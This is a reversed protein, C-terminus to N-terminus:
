KKFEENACYLCMVKNIKENAIYGAYAMNSMVVQKLCNCCVIDRAQSKSEENEWFKDDGEFDYGKALVVVIIDDKSVSRTEAIFEVTNKMIIKNEGLAVCALGGYDGWVSCCASPKRNPRYAIIGDYFSRGYVM